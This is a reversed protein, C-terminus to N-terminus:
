TNLFGAEDAADLASGIYWADLEVLVDGGDARGREQISLGILALTGARSQDAVEQPDKADSPPDRDERAWAALAADALERPLRVTVTTPQPLLSRGIAALTAADEAWIERLDGRGHVGARAFAAAVQNGVDPHLDGALPGGLGEAELVAATFEEVTAPPKDILRQRDDPALCYGGRVCLLDLLQEAEDASLRSKAM